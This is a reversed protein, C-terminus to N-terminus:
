RHSDMREYHETLANQVVDAPRVGRVGADAFVREALHRDLQVAIVIAESDTAFDVTIAQNRGDEHAPPNM